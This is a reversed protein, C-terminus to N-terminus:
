IQGAFSSGPAGRSISHIDGVCSERSAGVIFGSSILAATVAANWSTRSCVIRSQQVTNM